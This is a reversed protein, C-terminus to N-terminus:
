LQVNKSNVTGGSPITDRQFNEYYLWYARAALYSRSRCPPFETLIRRELASFDYFDAVHVDYARPFTKCEIQEKRKVTIARWHSEMQMQRGDRKGRAEGVEM